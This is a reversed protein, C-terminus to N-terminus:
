INYKNSFEKLKYYSIHAHKKFWKYILCLFIETIMIYILSLFKYSMFILRM